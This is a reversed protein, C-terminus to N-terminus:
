QDVIRKKIDEFYKKGELKTKIELNQYNKLFDIISVDSLKLYKLLSIFEYYMTDSLRLIQSIKKINKEEEESFNYKNELFCNGLKELFIFIKLYIDEILDKDEFNLIERKNKETELTDSIIKLILIKDRKFFHNAAELFGISEMDVYKGTEVSELSLNLNNRELVKDCCILIGECFDHNYLMDPYFTQKLNYANLIQAPIIIKGLKENKNLSGCFGINLIFDNENIEMNEIIKMLAMASKIRGVGSIILKIKENSFIQFKQSTKDKKLKYKEIIPKAEIFLATIIYIM